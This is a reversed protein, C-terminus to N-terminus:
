YRLFETVEISTLYHLAEKDKDGLLDSVQPHNVFTTVGFNPIKTILESREQSFPQCLKNHLQEVKLIESAQEKLRTQKTSWWYTWNRRVTRKRGKALGSLDIDAPPLRPKKTQPPLSPQHKPAMTLFTQPQSGLSSPFISTPFVSPSSSCKMIKIM